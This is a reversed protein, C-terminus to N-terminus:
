AYTLSMAAVSYFVKRSSKRIASYSADGRGLLVSKSEVEEHGLLIGESKAEDHSLLPIATASYYADGLFLLLSEL